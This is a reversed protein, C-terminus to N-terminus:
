FMQQVMFRTGGGQVRKRVANQEAVVSMVFKWFWSVVGLFSFSPRLTVYKIDRQLGIKYINKEKKKKKKKKM